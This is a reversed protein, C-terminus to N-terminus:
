FRTRIHLSPRKKPFIFENRVGKQHHGRYSWQIIKSWKAATPCEQAIQGRSSGQIVYSRMLASCKPWPNKRGFNPLWLDNRLLKVGPHGRNVGVHVDVGAICQVETPPEEWWIQHDYPWIPYEQAIQGSTSRPKGRYSRQDWCHMVSWNPTRGVLNPLWQANRLLKVGPQDRNVGTHGKIGAICQVETPPEEQWTKYDYPM